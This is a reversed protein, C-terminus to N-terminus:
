KRWSCSHRCRAVQNHYRRDFTNPDKRRRPERKVLLKFDRTPEGHAHRRLDDQLDSFWERNGAVIVDHSMGGTMAAMRLQDVQKGVTNNVLLEASPLNTTELRNFLNKVAWALTAVRVLDQDSAKRLDLLDLGAVGSVVGNGDPELLLKMFPTLVAESDKPWTGIDIGRENLTAVDLGPVVLVDIGKPGSVQTTGTIDGNHCGSCMTAFSKVEM